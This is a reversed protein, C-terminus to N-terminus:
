AIPLKQVDGGQEIWAKLQARGEPTKARDRAEKQTAPGVITNQAASAGIGKIATRVVSEAEAKAPLSQALLEAFLAADQFGREEILQDLRKRSEEPLKSALREFRRAANLDEITIAKPEAKAKDAAKARQAERKEVYSDLRKGLGNDIDEIRKTLAQAWSPMAEGDGAKADGADGGATTQDTM